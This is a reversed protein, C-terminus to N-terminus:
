FINIGNENCIAVDLESMWLECIINQETHTVRVVELTTPLRMKEFHPKMVEIVSVIEGVRPPINLNKPFCNNRYKDLNTRFRIM